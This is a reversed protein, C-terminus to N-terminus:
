VLHELDYRVLVERLLEYSEFHNQSLSAFENVRTLESKILRIAYESKLSRKLSLVVIFDHITAINKGPSRRLIRGRRQVFQRPDRSSALIYATSCAPIDIGEDLCRIAVMADILGLKFNELIKVRVAKSEESTFRSVDWSMSNLISTVAEVQRTERDSVDDENMNMLEDELMQTRGDGCYFLTHKSPNRNALVSKLKPIKNEASGILRSRRMLLGKLTSNEQFSKEGQRAILKSITDSLEVFEETEDESLEVIHPFYKYPTLVKDEIAEKLTYTHVIEGYYDALRKNRSEDLYHEPTASLGMRYRAEPLSNSYSSSSHHHCEDGIWFISDSRLKHIQNQFKLSKLTRNVVVVVGLKAYELKCNYILKDLPQEWLTSSMYCKIARINFLSLIEVWQDALNQYPVSIICLTSANTECVKVMGYIATVTKGAGTALALIGQGDGKSKWSNLALSQHARLSFPEGNLLKPVIPDNSENFARKGQNREALIKEIEPDPIQRTAQSVQILKQNVAEPLELVVTGDSKDNWLREFSEIHPQCFEQHTEIWNRFVNISEYNYTPLLAHISENASGAFVIKDGSVDSIIGIKDHYMGVRRLAIKIELRGNAVLWSLTEFRNHFLDDSVSDVESLFDKGISNLVSARMEYGERVANLDDIETFAGVILRITGGSKVFASLAQAAYSITSASFFGVARDYQSAVSLTKFYFDNLLNENDSKYVGKLPLNRLSM